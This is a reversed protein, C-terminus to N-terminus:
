YQGGTCMSLTFLAMTNLMGEEDKATDNSHGYLQLFEEQVEYAHKETCNWDLDHVDDLYHVFEHVIISVDHIDMMDLNQMLYMLDRGDEADLYVAQVELAADPDYPVDDGAYVRHMEEPGDVLIIQPLEDPVPVGYITATLALVAQFMFM